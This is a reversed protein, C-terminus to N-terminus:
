NNTKANFKLSCSNICYRLGTDESPGDDFVHGLHAGCNACVVETRVTGLSNDVIRHVNGKEAVDSFSPWGSGSEFKKDSGFLRTDCVICHFEGNEKVNVYRGVWARETGACPSPPLPPVTLLYRALNEHFKIKTSHCIFM